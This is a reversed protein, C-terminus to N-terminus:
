KFTIFIQGDPTWEHEGEHKDELMCTKTPQMYIAWYADDGQTERVWEHYGMWCHLQGNSM